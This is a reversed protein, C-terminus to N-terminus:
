SLDKSMRMLGMGLGWPKNLKMEDLEYFSVFTSNM